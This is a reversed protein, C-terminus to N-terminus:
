KHFTGPHPPQGSVSTVIEAAVVRLKVNRKQSAARLVAFAHDSTCHEQAMVIGLAQDIVSRSALSERLQTTLAATSSQRAALALAASASGAFLQARRAEAEGFAGPAPAYLNLAGAIDDAALPLSLSSRIGNAVAQVTFKGWRQDAETDDIVVQQGTRMAHLCPGQDLQYQVEDVQAARGDSSAVTLPQRGPQLTIGVSLNRAVARAALVAVEHLFGEMGSTALLLNQLETISAAIDDSHPNDPAM